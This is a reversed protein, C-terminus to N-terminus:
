NQETDVTQGYHGYHVLNLNFYPKFFTHIKTPKDTEINYILLDHPRNYFYNIINLHHNDWDDSWKDILEQTSKNYKICLTNLYAGNEHKIRSKLWTDKLRTNLIFKSNPYQTDLEKFLMESIYIPNRSLINEMDLFLVKKRYKYDILPNNNLYNKYISTALLGRDYHVSPIGNEKFLNFLTRTGCKNFGIQFIRFKNKDPKWNHRNSM